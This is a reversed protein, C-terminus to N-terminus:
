VIKNEADRGGMLVSAAGVLASVAMKLIESALSVLEESRASPSISAFVLIGVCVSLIMAYILIAAIQRVPM